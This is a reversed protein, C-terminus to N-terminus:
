YYIQLLLLSGLLNLARLFIQLIKKSLLLCGVLYLNGLYICTFMLRILFDAIAGHEALYSLDFLKVRKDLM